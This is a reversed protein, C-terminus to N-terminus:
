KEDGTPVPADYRWHRACYKDLRQCGNEEAAHMRAAARVGNAIAENIKVHKLRTVLWECHRRIRFLLSCFRTFFTVFCESLLAVISM